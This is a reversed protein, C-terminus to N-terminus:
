GCQEGQPEEFCKLFDEAKSDQQLQERQKSGKGWPNQWTGKFILKKGTSDEM